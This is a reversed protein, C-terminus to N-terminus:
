LLKEIAEVFVEKDRYGVFKEVINGERDVIFTTPIGKIGGFLGVIKQEKDMKLSIYNVNNDKVFEELANIDEDVSIGVVLLGQDKYEEHLEIFHPIEKKCPPCWTAWFDIIVVKGQLSASDFVTDDIDNLSFAPMAKTEAAKDETKDATGCGAILVAALLFVFISKKM